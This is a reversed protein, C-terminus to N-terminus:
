CSVRVRSSRFPLHLRVLELVSKANPRLTRPGAELLVTASEPRGHHVSVRESRVWGGLRTEQELLTIHSSPFRRSLNFAASLGTLGGGLITIRMLTPWLDLAHGFLACRIKGVWQAAQNGELCEVDKEEQKGEREM